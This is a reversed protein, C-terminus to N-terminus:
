APALPEKSMVIPVVVNNESNPLTTRKSVLQSRDATVGQCRGEQYTAFTSNVDEFVVPTYKVGLKRMQDSLNQETSTGTQVCISKGAFDKLSQIGSDKKVMISQSDYFIVPAFETRLATAVVPHLPIDASFTSKGAQLSLNDKANLKRYEVKEPDDFNGGRCGACM